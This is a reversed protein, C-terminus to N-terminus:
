GLVHYIDASFPSLVLSPRLSRLVLAQAQAVTYLTVLYPTLGSKVKGQFEDLFSVGQYEFCDRKQDAFHAAITEITAGVSAEVSGALSDKILDLPITRLQGDSEQRLATSM